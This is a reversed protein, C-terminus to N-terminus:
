QTTDHMGEHCSSCRLQHIDHTSAISAFTTDLATVDKHADEPRPHCKHCANKWSPEEATEVRSHCTNCKVDGHITRPWVPMNKRRPGHCELCVQDATEVPEQAGTTEDRRALLKRTTATVSHCGECDVGPNGDRAAHLSLPWRRHEDRVHCRDCAAGPLHGPIPKPGKARLIVAGGYIAAGAGLVALAIAVARAREAFPRYDTLTVYLSGGAHVSAALLLLLSVVKAATVSPMAVHASAVILAVLALASWRQV